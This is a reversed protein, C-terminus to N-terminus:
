VKVYPMPAVMDALPSGFKRFPALAREGDQVSGIYAPIEVAIPQGHPGCPLASFAMVEDPAHEFQDRHFKWMDRARNPPHVIMGALVPGVEHLQYEFSTVIGFNGGGGRLGWFLDPNETRSVHVLRGDATVVDASVLNDSALGHKRM